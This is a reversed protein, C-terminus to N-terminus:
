FRFSGKIKEAILPQYEPPVHSISFIDQVEIQIVQADWSSPLYAQALTDNKATTDGIKKLVLLGAGKHESCLKRNLHSLRDMDIWHVYGEKQSTIRLNRKALPFSYLDDTVEETGGLAQIIDRFRDLAIGNQLQNKLFSKAQTRNTFKGGQILLDAGQEIALKTYDLPGKAKLVDLAEQLELVPGLAHGLPQKLSTIFCSFGIRAADCQERLDMALERANQSYITNSFDGVRFDIAIGDWDVANLIFLSHMKFRYFEDTDPNTFGKNYLPISEPISAYTGGTFELLRNYDEPNSPLAIGPISVLNNLLAQGSIENHWIPKLIRLGASALLPVLVLSIKDELNNHSLATV